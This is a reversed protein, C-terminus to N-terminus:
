SLKFELKLIFFYDVIIVRVKISNIFFCNLISTLIIKLVDIEETIFKTATIGINIECIVNNQMMFM